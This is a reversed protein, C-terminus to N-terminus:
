FAPPASAGALAAPPPIFEGDQPVPPPAVGGVGADATTAPQRRQPVIHHMRAFALVQDPVEKLVERALRQPNARFKEFPVFQVIDRHAKKGNIQLLGDDADLQDMAGFDAHGVGVIIISMPRDSAAIISEVTPRMDNIIGDTLILLINYHQCEAMSKSSVATASQIIENFYTPGALALRSLSAHYADILGHVGHVAPRAPDLTLPFCHSLTWEPPVAGPMPPIQAGFGWAPFMNDHDYPALIHGVASMAEAYPTPPAGPGIHHLSRVSKPDGNSGTFDVAVMLSVEMGGAIYDLFSFEKRVRLTVHLTGRSKTKSKEKKSKPRLLTHQAASGASAALVGNVTLTCQGILDHDSNRDWDMVRLVFPRDPQGNCVASIPVELKHWSADLSNKIIETTGVVVEHGDEHVRMVQVYPDSKGFFDMKELNTASLYFELVDLNHHIEEARVTLTPGNAAAAKTKETAKSSSDDRQRLQKADNTLLKMTTLGSVTAVVNALSTQCSGLFDHNRMHDDPPGDADVVRFQLEQFEEFFYDISIVTKFTPNLDNKIRETRGLLEYQGNHKQYVCVIPDSKSFWDMNPLNNCSLHMEVRSHSKM